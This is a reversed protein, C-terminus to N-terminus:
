NRTKGQCGTSPTRLSSTFFVNVSRNNVKLVEIQLKLRIIINDNIKCYRNKKSLRDQWTEIHAELLLYRGRPNVSM